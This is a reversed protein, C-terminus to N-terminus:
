IAFTSPTDGTAFSGASLLLASALPVPAEARALYRLHQAASESYLDGGDRKLGGIAAELNALRHKVERMDDRVGGIDSRIACLHESVLNEVNEM